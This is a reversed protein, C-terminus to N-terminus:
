GIKVSKKRNNRMHCRAAVIDNNRLTINNSVPVFMQPLQPSRRGIEIWEQEGSTENTQIVYGSTVLGLKHTHTRYAFPHITKNADFRIQCAAEFNETSKGRIFGTTAHILVGARYRLPEKQTVISITSNDTRNKDQEFPTVDAYHVQLILYNLRTKGGLKFAVDKPLTLKEADLAWAYIISQTGRCVPGKPYKGDKRNSSEMEGCDWLDDKSPHECATLLMHHAINKASKPIFGTIYLPETKNLEFSKCLYFDNHQPIVDPMTLDIQQANIQASILLLAALIKFYSM